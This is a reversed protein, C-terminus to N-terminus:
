RLARERWYAGTIPVVSRRADLNMDTFRKDDPEGVRAAFFAYGNWVRALIQMPLELREYRYAFGEGIVKAYDGALPSLAFPMHMDDWEWSLEADAPELWEFPFADTGPPKLPQDPM